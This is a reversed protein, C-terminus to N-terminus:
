PFLTKSFLDLKDDREQSSNVFNILLFMNPRYKCISSLFLYLFYFLFFFMCSLMFASSSLATFENKSKLQVHGFWLVVYVAAWTYIGAKNLSLLCTETCVVYLVPTQYKPGLLQKNSLQFQLINVFVATFHEMHGNTSFFHQYEFQSVLKQMKFIM